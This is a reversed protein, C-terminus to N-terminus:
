LPYSIVLILILIHKFFSNDSAKKLDFVVYKPNAAKLQM